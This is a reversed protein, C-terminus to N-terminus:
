HPHMRELVLEKQLDLLVMRNVWMNDKIVLINDKIYMNVSDM